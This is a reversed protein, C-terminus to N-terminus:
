SVGTTEGLKEAEADSTTDFASGADQDFVGSMLASEFDQVWSEGNSKEAPPQVNFKHGCPRCRLMRGLFSQPIAHRQSCSPCVVKYTKPESM